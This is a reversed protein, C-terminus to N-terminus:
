MDALSRWLYLTAYAEWGKYPAFITRVEELSPKNKLHLLNKLANHIGVDEAPFADPYRFTKMLAYNATWNGIGKWQILKMKAEELPMGQLQEKSLQGTAFAGAARIMYNAKQKSFQLDLLQQPDLAAVLAPQPFCYYTENEHTLQQGFSEVFRQKLTYAFGLNIQQGIIAWAISEFLDPQGVIRYGHYKKVLPKLLPDRAAMRYFPQLDTALDFWETIFDTVEKLMAKSSKRNHFSIQLGTEVPEVSFLILDDGVPLLKYVKNGKITHLKEKPSRQLFHVCQEFSFISPKLLISM